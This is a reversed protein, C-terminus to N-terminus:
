KEHSQHTKYLMKFLGAHLMSAIPAVNIVTIANSKTDIFTWPNFRKLLCCVHVHENLWVVVKKGGQSCGWKGLAM